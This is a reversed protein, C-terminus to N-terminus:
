LVNSRLSSETCDSMSTHHLQRPHMSRGARAGGYICSRPRGGDGVDRSRGCFTNEQAGREAFKHLRDTNCGALAAEISGRGCSATVETAMYQQLACCAAQVRCIEETARTKPMTTMRRIAPDVQKSASCLVGCAVCDGDRPQRTGADGALDVDVGEQSTLGLLVWRQRLMEQRRRPHLAGRAVGERAELRRVLLPEAPRRRRERM